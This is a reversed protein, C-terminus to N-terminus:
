QIQHSCDFIGPKGRIKRSGPPVILHKSFHFWDPKVMDSRGVLNWWVQCTWNKKFTHVPCVCLCVFPCFFISFHLDLHMSCQYWLWSYLYNSCQLWMPGWQFMLAHLPCRPRPWITFAHSVILISFHAYISARLTRLLYILGTVAYRM